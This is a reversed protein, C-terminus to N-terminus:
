IKGRRRRRKSRFHSWAVPCSQSSGALHFRRCINQNLTEAIKNQWERLDTITVSNRHCGSIIGLLHVDISHVTLDSNMVAWETPAFHDNGSIGFKWILIHIYTYVLTLRSGANTHLQTIPFLDYLSKMSRKLSVWDCGLFSPGVYILSLRILPESLRSILRIKGIAVPSFVSIHRPVRPPCSSPLISLLSQLFHSLHLQIYIPLLQSPM